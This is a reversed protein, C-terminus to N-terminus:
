DSDSDSEQPADREIREGDASLRGIYGGISYDTPDVAFMNRSGVKHFVIEGDIVTMEHKVEIVPASTDCKGQLNAPVSLVRAHEAETHGCRLVPGKKAAPKPAPKPKPLPPPATGAGGVAPAEDQEDLSPLAVTSIWEGDVLTKCVAWANVSPTKGQDEQHAKVWKSLSAFTGNAGRFSDSAAHYTATWTDGAVKHSVQQGNRFCLTQDRCGASTRSSPAKAKPKASRVSSVPSGPPTLDPEDSAVSAAGASRPSGARLNLRRRLEGESGRFLAELVDALLEPPSAKIAAIVAEMSMPEPITTFVYTLDPAAM